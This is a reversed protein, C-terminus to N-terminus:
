VNSISVSVDEHVEMCARTCTKDGVNKMKGVRDTLTIRSGAPPTSRVHERAHPRKCLATKKMDQEHGRDLSTSHTFSVNRTAKLGM